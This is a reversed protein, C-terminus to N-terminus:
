LIEAVAKNRAKAIKEFERLRKLGDMTAKVVNHPNRSRLTKTRVNQLGAAELIGRVTASAIVGTGEVAPKMLVRGSCFKGIIDHPISKADSTIPVLIMNKKAQKSAKKIAEPVENAKGLGIGVHGQRDGAVVLASFSFRRGGKVVKAVRNIYLVKEEYQNGDSDVNRKKDNNQNL